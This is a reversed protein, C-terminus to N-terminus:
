LSEDWMDLRIMLASINNMTKYNGPDIQLAKSYTEVAKLLEGSMEYNRALYFLNSVQENHLSESNSEIGSPSEESSSFAAPATALGLSLSAGTLIIFFLLPIEKNM